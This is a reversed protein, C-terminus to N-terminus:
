GLRAVGSRWLLFVMAGLIALWVALALGGISSGGTHPNRRSLSTGIGLVALGLVIWRPTPSSQLWAVLQPVDLLSGIQRTVTVQM